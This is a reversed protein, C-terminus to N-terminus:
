CQHVIVNLRYNMHEPVELWHLDYAASIAMCWAHASHKCQTDKSAFLQSITIM